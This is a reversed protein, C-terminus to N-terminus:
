WIGHSSGVWSEVRRKPPTGPPVGTEQVLNWGTRRRPFIETDYHNGPPLGIAETVEDQTMGLQIRSYARPWFNSSYWPWGAITVITVLMAGGLSWALTKRKM